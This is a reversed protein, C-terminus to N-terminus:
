RVDLASARDKLAPLFGPGVRLTNVTDPLQVGALAHLLDELARSLVYADYTEAVPTPDSAM